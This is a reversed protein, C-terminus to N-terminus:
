RYLDAARPPSYLISSGACCPMALRTPLAYPFHFSLREFKLNNTRRARIPAPKRAM